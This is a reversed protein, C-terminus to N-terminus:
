KLSPAVGRRGRLDILKLGPALGKRKTQRSAGERDLKVTVSSSDEAYLTVADDTYWSCARARYKGDFTDVVVADYDARVDKCQTFTETGTRGVIRIYKGQFKRYIADRWARAEVTNM